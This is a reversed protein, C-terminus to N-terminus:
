VAGGPANLRTIERNMESVTAADLQDLSKEWWKSRLLFAITAENFRYRIVKAPVGGVIAYDPVDHLVVAGAAVVAGNGITVGNRIFVNAGIWVDNMIRVRAYLPDGSSTNEIGDKHRYIYPSTSLQNLPHEGFGIVTNPGVSCYNGIDCFEVIANYSIYTNIGFQIDRFHNNGHYGLGKRHYDRYSRFKKTLATKRERWLQRLFSLYLKTRGIM